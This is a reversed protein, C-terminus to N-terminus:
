KIIIGELDYDSSNTIKIKVFEGINIKKLMERDEVKCKVLGDIEYVDMYTRGYVYKGNIHEVIMDYENGIKDKNNNYSIENQLKMIKNYRSLKTM